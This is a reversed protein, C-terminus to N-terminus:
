KKKTEAVEKVKPTIAGFESEMVKKEIEDFLEPEDKFLQIVNQQGNALKREGYSHWGGSKDVIDHKLAFELVEAWRSFGEGYMIVSRAEKFPAAVKNKIIKVKVENGIPEDGKKITKVKRIDIRVSSFFKLAQGGSTTEPSGYGMTGIKMRIQNIFIITTGQQSAVSTIKRLAQSMMRAQVGVQTDGIEGELESKPILASVSDIVILDVAGSAALDQVGNLAQEGFDPQSILLNDIDVGLRKAYQPDLAHEADIFAAIGGKKQVEAIIQLTLTTKGSSEPGYVEIIRGKPIGGIGLAADISISGTSYAPIKEINKDGLKRIFGRGNKKELNKMVIDLAKIKEESPAIRTAM